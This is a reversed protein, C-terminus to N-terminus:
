PYVFTTFEVSEGSPLSLRIPVSGVSEFEYRIRILLDEDAATAFSYVVEAGNGREAAPVPVISTINIKELSSQPMHLNMTEGSRKNAPVRYLVEMPAHRRAFREYEVSIGSPSITKAYSLPGAGLVGAMAAIAIAAMLGRGIRQVWHLRRYFQLQEDVPKENV